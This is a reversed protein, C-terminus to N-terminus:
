CTTVGLLKFKESKATSNSTGVLMRMNLVIEVPGRKTNLWSSTSTKNDTKLKLGGFEVIESKPISDNIIHWSTITWVPDGEFINTKSKQDLSNGEDNSFWVTANAM